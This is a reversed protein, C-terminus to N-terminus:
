EIEKVARDDTRFSTWGDNADLSLEGRLWARKTGNAVAFEVELLHPLVEHEGARLLATRIGPNRTWHVEAFGKPDVAPDYAVEVGGVKARVERLMELSCNYLFLRHSARRLSSRAVFAPEVAQRQKEGVPWLFTYSLQARAPRGGGRAGTRWRQIQRLRARPNPTDDKWNGYSVPARHALELEVESAPWDSHQRELALVLRELETRDAKTM